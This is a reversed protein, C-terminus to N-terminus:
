AVALPAAVAGEIAELRLAADPLSAVVCGSETFSHSVYLASSDVSVAENAWRVQDFLRYVGPEARVCTVRSNISFM